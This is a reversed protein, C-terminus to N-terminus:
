FRISGVMAQLNKGIVPTVNVAPKRRVPVQAKSGSHRLADVGAGIAAGAGAGVVGFTLPVNFGACEHCEIAGSGAFAGVLAGLGAGILVGNWLPDRRSQVQAPRTASERPPPAAVDAARALAGLSVTPEGSAQAQAMAPRCTLVTILMGAVFVIRSSVGM